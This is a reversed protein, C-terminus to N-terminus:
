QSHANNWDTMNTNNWDTQQTNWDTMSNGNWYSADYGSGNNYNYYSGTIVNTKYEYIYPSQYKTSNNYEDINPVRVPEFQFNNSGFLSFGAWEGPYPFHIWSKKNNTVENKNSFYGTLNEQSLAPFIATLIKLVLFVVIAVLIWKFIVGIAGRISKFM